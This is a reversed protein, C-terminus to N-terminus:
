DILKAKQTQRKRILIIIWVILLTLMIIAIIIVFVPMILVLKTETKDQDLAKITSTVKFIGIVPTDEWTESILRTTDPLVSYPTTKEYVTKGFLDKIIITSNVEFDTNGTNKVSSSSKIQGNTLFGSLSLDSVETSNKTQGETRGFVVLGIRSVARVGTGNPNDEPDSEAFITAYQGGAPVDSPTSIKYTITQKESPEISFSASESFNGNAQKFSIWRSIQTRPTEDTFNLKYEENTVSYPTAYVKYKFSAKGLNQIDFTYELSEGPKLDVRNSVPSIQMWVDSAHVPNSHLGLAVIGTLLTILLKKLM